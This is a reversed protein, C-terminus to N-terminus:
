FCHKNDITEYGAETIAPRKNKNQQDSICQEPMTVQDLKLPEVSLRASQSQSRKIIINGHVEDTVLNSLHYQKRKTNIQRRWKGKDSKERHIHLAPISAVKNEGSKKQHELIKKRLRRLSKRSM